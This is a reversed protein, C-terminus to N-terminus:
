RSAAWWDRSTRGKVDRPKLAQRTEGATAREPHGQVDRGPSPGGGSGLRLHFLQLRRATTALSSLGQHFPVACATKGTSEQRAQVAWGGRSPAASGHGSRYPPANGARKNNLVVALASREAQDDALARVGAVGALSDRALGAQHGLFLELAPGVDGGGHVGLAAPDEGLDHVGSADGMLRGVTAVFHDRRASNRDVALGSGILSLLREGNRVGQGGLFQRASTWSNTVADRLAIPAPNSPM